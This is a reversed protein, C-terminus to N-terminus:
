FFNLIFIFQLNQSLQPGFTYNKLLQPGFYLKKFNAGFNFSELIPYFECRKDCMPKYNIQECM